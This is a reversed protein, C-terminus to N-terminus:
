LGDAENQVMEVSAGVSAYRLTKVTVSWPVAVARCCARLEDLLVTWIEGIDLKPPLVRVPPVPPVVPSLGLM